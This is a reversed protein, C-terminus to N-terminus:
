LDSGSVSEIADSIASDRCFGLKDATSILMRFDISDAGQSKAQPKDSM